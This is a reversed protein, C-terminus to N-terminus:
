AATRQVASLRKRRAAQPPESLFLVDEAVTVDVVGVESFVVVVTCPAALVWVDVVAAPATPEVVDVVRLTEVAVVALVLLTRPVLLPAFTPDVGCAFRVFMVEGAGVAGEASACGPPLAVNKFAASTDLM